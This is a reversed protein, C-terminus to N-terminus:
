GDLRADFLVKSIDNEQVHNPEQCVVPITASLRKVLLQAKLNVHTRWVGLLCQM